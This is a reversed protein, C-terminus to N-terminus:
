YELRQILDKWREFTELSIEAWKSDCVVIDIHEENDKDKVKVLKAPDGAFDYIAMGEGKKELIYNFGSFTGEDESSVVVIKKDREILLEAVKASRGFFFSLDEADYKKILDFDKEIAEKFDNLNWIAYVM